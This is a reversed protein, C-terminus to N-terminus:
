DVEDLEYDFVEQAFRAVDEEQEESISGDSIHATGAFWGGLEVYDLIFSDNPFKESLAAIAQCPPSWATNFYACFDTSDSILGEAVERQENEDLDWKTGWNSIRWDYWGDELLHTPTPNMKEFSFGEAKLYQELEISCDEIVLKNNCWNPM